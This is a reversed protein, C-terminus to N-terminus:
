GFLASCRVHEGQLRANAVRRLGASWSMLDTDNIVEKERSAVSSM